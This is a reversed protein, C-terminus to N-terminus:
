TSHLLNNVIYEMEIAFDGMPYRALVPVQDLVSEEVESQASISGLFSVEKSLWKRSVEQIMIPVHHMNNYKPVKNLVLCPKFDAMAQKVLPLNHPRYDRVQELFEKITRVKAGHSPLTMGQILRELDKDRAIRYKSEPGFIRALKRYLAEKIFHYAGMYSASDPTTVVIGYDARLFFDLSNYSVDGGLDLIIYDADIVGLARILRLKKMFKINAAGLESNGGSIMLPGYESEVTVENLTKVRKKLFDNINREASSHKGLYVHINAGGLDLDVVVTKFGGSSLFVGLNTAFVSKGVGGKASGVAIIKKRKEQFPDAEEALCPTFFVYKDKDLRATNM